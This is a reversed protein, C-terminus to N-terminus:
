SDRYAIFVEKGLNMRVNFFNATNGSTKHRYSNSYKANVAAYIGKGWFGANSFCADLGEGSQAYIVSPDLSSTGHWLHKENDPTKLRTQELGNVYISWKKVDQILTIKTIWFNSNM